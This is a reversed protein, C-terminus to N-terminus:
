PCLDKKQASSTDVVPHQQHAEMLTSQAAPPAWFRWVACSCHKLCLLEKDFATVNGVREYRCYDHENNTTLTSDRRSRRITPPKFTKRSSVTGNPSTGTTTEAGNSSSGISTVAGYLGIRSFVASRDTVAKHRFRFRNVKKHRSFKSIAVTTSLVNDRRISWVISRM